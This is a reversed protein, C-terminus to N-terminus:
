LDSTGLWAQPIWGSWDHGLHPRDIRVMLGLSTMVRDGSPDLVKDGDRLEGRYRADKGSGTQLVRFATVTVPQGAEGPQPALFTEAVNFLGCDEWPMGCEVPQFRGIPTEVPDAGRPHIVYGREDYFTGHRSESKSGQGHIVVQYYVRETQPPLWYEPIWGTWDQGAFKGDLRVYPGMPTEIRAALPVPRAKDFLDGRYRVGDPGDIRTVRFLTPGPVSPNNAPGRPDFGDAKRLDGCVSWLYRCGIREFTGIPTRVPEFSLRGAPQNASADTLVGKVGQSRSGPNTVILEYVTQERVPGSDASVRDASILLLPLLCLLLRRM